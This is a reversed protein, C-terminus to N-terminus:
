DYDNYWLSYISQLYVTGYTHMTHQTSMCSKSARLMVCVSSYLKPRSRRVTSPSNKDTLLTAVISYEDSDKHADMHTHTNGHKQVIVLFFRDLFMFNLYTTIYSFLESLNSIPCQRVLNLTMVCSQFKEGNVVICVTM